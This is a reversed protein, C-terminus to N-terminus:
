PIFVEDFIEDLRKYYSSIGRYEIGAKRCRLRLAEKNELLLERIKDLSFLIDKESFTEVIAGVNFKEAFIDDEAIGKCTIYPLGCMLYEGVKNPSRYKQSFTPPVASLGIDSASIYDKVQDYSLNGTIIYSENHLIIINFFCQHFGAVSM